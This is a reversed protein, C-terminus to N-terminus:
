QRIPRAMRQGRHLIKRLDGWPFGETTLYVRFPYGFITINSIDFVIVWFCHLIRGRTCNIVLLFDHGYFGIFGGQVRRPHGRILTRSGLKPFGNIDRFNISNSLDFRVPLYSHVRTEHLFKKRLPPQLPWHGWSLNKRDEPITGFIDEALTLLWETNTLVFTWHGLSVPWHGCVTHGTM